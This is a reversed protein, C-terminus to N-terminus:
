YCIVLTNGIEELNFITSAVDGHLSQLAFFNDYYRVWINIIQIFKKKFFIGQLFISM